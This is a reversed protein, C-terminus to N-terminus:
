DRSADSDAEKKVWQSCVVLHPEQIAGKVLCLGAPLSCYCDGDFHDCNKCNNKLVTAPHTM